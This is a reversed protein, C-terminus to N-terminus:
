ASANARHLKAVGFDILKPQIRGDHERAVLINEPKLDRHVIGKSTPRPWPTARMPLLLRM